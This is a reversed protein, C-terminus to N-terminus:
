QATLPIIALDARIPGIETVATLRLPLRRRDDSIWGRLQFKDPQPDDTTLSIQIASISQSGLQITERKLSSIILTTPKNNVLLSVANRRPPALNFTRALYFFSIYDHTGVPIEIRQNQDTTVVGHDQNISLTQNNRRRGEVLKLETRFPLLTKADVYSTVQDNAVFLRQIAPSTQAQATYVLGDKSLNESRARVQFTASGAPQTMSGLFVQYNLQEGVKFPLADLSHDSVPTSPQPTASPTPAAPVVVPTPVPQPGAPKIVDSAALEARIEGGSLRATALVPLHREDDSFYVKINRSNSNSAIRVQTAIADFSGAKTKVTQRGTVKVEVHYEDAGNRVSLRQVSGDALSTARVRYIASLFDYVGGSLDQTSESARPGVHSVVESRFPMGTQPDLFSVYDDNIAFLAVNVLGTTEVHARLQVAERGFFSGEAVVRIEAHAASIFNSFSVDYTLREGVLYPATSFPLSAIDGKRQAATTLHLALSLFLLIWLVPKLRQNM